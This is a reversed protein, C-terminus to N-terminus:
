RSSGTTGAKEHWQLFLRLWQQSEGRTAAQSPLAELQAVPPKSESDGQRSRPTSGTTDLPTSSAISQRSPPKMIVFLLAVVALVAAVAAIRGAVSLLASRDFDRTHRAPEDIANPVLSTPPSTFSLRTPESRTPQSVSRGLKAARESLRLPTCDREPGDADISDQEGYSKVDAQERQYRLVSM